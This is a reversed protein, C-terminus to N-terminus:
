SSWSRLSAIERAWGDMGSPTEMVMPVDTFRPDSAIMRFTEEGIEGEGLGAHRDRRSGLPKKSDNLHFAAITDIGVKEDYERWTSEWGSKTTIDYGAAFAHCTDICTGIRSRNEGKVFRRMDALHEFRYGLNTGQGATNELLIRIPEDREGCVWPGTLDSTREFIIDLSEAVAKVGADEGEGLHSGPHLVVGHVGLSQSRQLEECLGHRSKELKEDDTASLNFLYSAHVIVREIGYNPCASWWDDVQNESLPKPIWQRQNASFIQMCNAGISHAREPALEVGGAASVHAGFFRTEVL